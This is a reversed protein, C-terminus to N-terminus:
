LPYATRKEKKNGSHPLAAGRHRLHDSQQQSLSLELYEDWGGAAPDVKIGAGSGPKGICVWYGGPLPSHFRVSLEQQAVPM